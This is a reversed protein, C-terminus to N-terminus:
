NNKRFHLFFLIFVILIYGGNFYGAGRISQTILFPFLFIKNDIDIKKSLMILFLLFYYFIGFIGFEVIIKFFNNTADKKNYSTFITENINNEKNFSLYAIEYNQFGWGLPKKQFSQYTVQMAHYFVAGSLSGNNSFNSQLKQIVQPKSDQNDPEKHDYKNLTLLNYGMYKTSIKEKCTKDFFFLSFIFSFLLLFIVLLSKKIKLREFILFFSMSFILGMLLTASSKLFCIIIFFIFFIKLILSTKKESMLFLSFLIVPVATMALHSNELYILSYSSIFHIYNYSASLYNKIGGCSVPEPNPYNSYFFNIIISFFFLLIFIKVILIKNKLILYSYYYAIMFLYILFFTSYIFDINLFLNSLLQHLLLFFFLTLSYFLIIKKKYDCIFKKLLFPLLLLIFYRFDFNISLNLKKGAEWFFIYLTFIFILFNKKNVLKIIM